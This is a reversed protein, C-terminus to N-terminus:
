ITGIRGLLSGVELLVVLFRGVLSVFMDTLLLLFFFLGGGVDFNDSIDLDLTCLRM